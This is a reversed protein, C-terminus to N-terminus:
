PREARVRYYAGEPPPAADDLQLISGSGPATAVDTWDRFNTTRELIYTWKARSQFETRWVGATFRPVIPSLPPEPVTTEVNDIIGNALISGSFQPDQGADTFSSISLANVRFDSFNSALVIDEMPGFLAGNRTMTTKLTRSSATYTMDVHYLDDVELGFLNFSYGFQHNSSIITPSVTAGFGSDPFYDFEVINPSNIGTGRLFTPQTANSLNLLGVAIQFTFPKNTDIGIGIDRLRLDFSFSFDDEKTLITGLPHYFYSNTERSDWTVELNENTSNWAFLTSNGYTRWAGALPDSAFSEHTVVAALLNSSIVVIGVFAPVVLRLAYM